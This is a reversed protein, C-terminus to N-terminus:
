EGVLEGTLREDVLVVLLLEGRTLEDVFLGIVVDVM